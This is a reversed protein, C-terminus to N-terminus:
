HLKKSTISFAYFGEPLSISTAQYLQLQACVFGVKDAHMRQETKYLFMERAGETSEKEHVKLIGSAVVTYTAPVLFRLTWRTPEQLQPLWMSSHGFLDSSFIYKSSGSVSSYPRQYEHRKIGYQVVDGFLSVVVKIEPKKNKLGKVRLFPTSQENSFTNKELVEFSSLDRLSDYRNRM